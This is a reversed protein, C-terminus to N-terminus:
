LNSRSSRGQLLKTTKNGSTLPLTCTQARSSHQISCQMCILILQHCSISPYASITSVISFYNNYKKQTLQMEKIVGVYAVV